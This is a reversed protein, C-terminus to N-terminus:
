VEPLALGDPELAHLELDIATPGSPRRPMPVRRRNPTQASRLKRRVLSVDAARRLDVPAFGLRALFRNADRAGPQVVVVLQAVGYQEAYSAAAGVLAQGVGRRRARGAVVAHSLHVAPTDLLAHTPGITMLGMGLVEGGGEVVVLHRTVDELCAAYRDAVHLRAAETRTSAPLLRDRLEDGLQVLADLDELAAPRVQLEQRRM